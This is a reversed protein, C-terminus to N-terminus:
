LGDGEKAKVAAEFAAYLADINGEAVEGLKAAKGHEKVLARAEDKSTLGMHKEAITALEARTHQPKVVEAKVTETKTSTSGASTSSAAGGGVSGGGAAIKEMAVVLREFLGMEAAAMIQIGEEAPKSDLHQIALGDDRTSEHYHAAAKFYVALLEAQQRLPAALIRKKLAIAQPTESFPQTLKGIASDSSFIM